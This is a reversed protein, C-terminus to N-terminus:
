KPRVMASSLGCCNGVILNSSGIGSCVYEGGVLAGGIGTPTSELEFGITTVGFVPELKPSIMFLIASANVGVGTMSDVAIVIVGNGAGVGAGVGTGDGVGDGDGIGAGNGSGITGRLGYAGDYVEV